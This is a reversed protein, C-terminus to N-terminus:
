FGINLTELLRTKSFNAAFDHEPHVKNAFFGAIQFNLIM